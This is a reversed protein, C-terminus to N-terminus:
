NFSILFTFFLQFKEIIIHSTNNFMKIIIINIIVIFIMKRVLSLEQIQYYKSIITIKHNTSTLRMIIIVWIILEESILQMIRLKNPLNNM